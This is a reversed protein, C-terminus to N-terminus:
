SELNFINHSSAGLLADRFKQRSNQLQEKSALNKPSMCDGCEFDANAGLTHLAGAPNKSFHARFSDDTGLKDLLKDVMDPTMKSGAM